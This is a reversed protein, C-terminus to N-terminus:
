PWKNEPTPPVIVEIEATIFNGNRRFKQFEYLKRALEDAMSRIIDEKIWEEKINPREEPLFPRDIRLMKIRSEPVERIPNSKQGVIPRMM